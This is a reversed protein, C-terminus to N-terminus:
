GAGMARERMVRWRACAATASQFRPRVGCREEIDDALADLIDALTSYDWPKDSAAEAEVVAWAQLQSLMVARESALRESRPLFDLFAIAYALARATTRDDSNAVAPTYPSNPCHPINSLSVLAALPISGRNGAACHQRSIPTM